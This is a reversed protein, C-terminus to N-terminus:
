MGVTFSECTTHCIERSIRQAGNDDLAEFDDLTIVFPLGIVGLRFSSM